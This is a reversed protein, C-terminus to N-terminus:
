KVPFLTCKEAHDGFEHKQAVIYTKSFVLNDASVKILKRGSLGDVYLSQLKFSQRSHLCMPFVDSLSNTNNDPVYCHLFDFDTSPDSSSM